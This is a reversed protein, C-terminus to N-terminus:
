VRDSEFRVLIDDCQKEKEKKRERENKRKRVCEAVNCAVKSWLPNSCVDSAHLAVEAHQRDLVFSLLFFSLCLERQTQKTHM